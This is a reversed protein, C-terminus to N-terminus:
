ARREHSGARRLEVEEVVEMARVAVSGDVPDAPEATRDLWGEIAAPDGGAQGALSAAFQVVAGLVGYTALMRFHWAANPLPLLRNEPDHPALLFRGGIWFLAATSGYRILRLGLAQAMDPAALRQIDAIGPLALTNPPTM